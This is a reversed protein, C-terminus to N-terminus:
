VILEYESCRDVSVAQSQYWSYREWILILIKLFIKAAGRRFCSNHWAVVVVINAWLPGFVVLVCKPASPWKDVYFPIWWWMVECEDIINWSSDRCEDWCYMADVM